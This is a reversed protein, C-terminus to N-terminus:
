SSETPLEFRYGVGWVTVISAERGLKSRIRSIHSDVTRDNRDGGLPLANDAIYSRTLARGPREILWALVNFEHATFPVAQGGRLVTRAELDVVIDAWSVTRGPAKPQGIRAKIRALLERMFFPKPLYDVAGLEFSRVRSDIDTCATLVIVPTSARGELAELVEFGDREPLMLDLIVLDPADRLILEAATTGNDCMDVAYGATHLGAVLEARIRMDDEVVLLRTVTDKLVM